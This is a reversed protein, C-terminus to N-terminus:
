ILLDISRLISLTRNTQALAVNQTYMQQAIREFNKKLQDRDTASSLTNTQNTNSPQM